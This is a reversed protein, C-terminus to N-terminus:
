GMIRRWNGGMRRFMQDDERDAWDRRRFQTLGTSKVMIPGNYIGIQFSKTAIMSFADALDDYREFGFRILQNVLINDSNKPFLIRKTELNHVTTELRARKDQGLTQYSVTNHFGESLLTEVMARQYGVDEVIINTGEGSDMGRAMSKIAELAEHYNLKKNIYNPLLYLREQGNERLMYGGLIATKDASDTKAIALDVAIFGQSGPYQGFPIEDYLTIMDPRIIQDESIWDNLLYETQWSREVIGKDHKYKSLSEENPWRSKWLIVGEGDIIPYKRFVGNLQGLEIRTKLTHMLSGETMITGVMILTTAEDGLPVIDRDFWTILKERNEETKVSDLTEVDDCIILDPRKNKYRIGRVSENVSVAMVKTDYDKFVLSSINWEEATEEFPGLDAKLIDNSELVAKINSMLIESQRATNSILVIFRKKKFGIMSWIVGATSVLTSKGSGRFAAIALNTTNTEVLTLIEKHFEALSKQVLDKRFKRYKVAKNVIMQIENSNM